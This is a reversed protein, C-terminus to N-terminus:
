YEGRTNSRWDDNKCNGCKLLYFHFRDAWNVSFWICIKSVNWLIIRRAIDDAWTWRYKLYFDQLHCSAHYFKKSTKTWLGVNQKLHYIHQCMLFNIKIKYWLIDCLGWFFILYLSWCTFHLLFTQHSQYPKIERFWLM